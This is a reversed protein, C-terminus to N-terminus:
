EKESPEAGITITTNDGGQINTSNNGSNISQSVNKKEKNKLIFGGVTSLVLVGIGSFVWERNDIIWGMM